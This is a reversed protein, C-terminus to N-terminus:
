SNNKGNLKGDPICNMCYAELEPCTSHPEDLLGIAVNLPEDRFFFKRLFHVVKEADDKTIPVITYPVKNGAVENMKVEEEYNRM